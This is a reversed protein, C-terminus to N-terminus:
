SILLCYIHIARTRTNCTPYESVQYLLLDDSCQRGPIPYSESIRLFHLFPSILNITRADVKSAIRCRWGIWWLRRRGWSRCVYM